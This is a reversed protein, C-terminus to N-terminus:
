RSHNSINKGLRHINLSIDPFNEDHRARHLAEATFSEHSLYSPQLSQSFDRLIETLVAPLEALFRVPYKV